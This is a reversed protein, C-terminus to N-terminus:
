YKTQKTSAIAGGGGGGRGEEGGGGGCHIAFLVMLTLNCTRALIYTHTM